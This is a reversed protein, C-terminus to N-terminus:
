SALFATSTAVPDRTFPIGWIPSSILLDVTMEESSASRSSCTGADSAITPAPATPISNASMKWAKPTFIVRM